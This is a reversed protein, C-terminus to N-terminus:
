RTRPLSCFARIFFCGDATGPVPLGAGTGMPGERPQAWGMKGQWLGKLWGCEPLCAPHSTLVGVCVRAQQSPSLERSICPHQGTHTSLLLHQLSFCLEWSLWVSAWIRLPSMNGHESGVRTFFLTVSVRGQLESLQPRAFHRPHEQM